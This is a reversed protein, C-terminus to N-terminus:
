VLIMASPAPLVVPVQSSVPWGCKWPLGVLQADGRHLQIGPHTLCPESDLRCVDHVVIAKV